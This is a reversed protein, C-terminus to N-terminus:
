GSYGLLYAYRVATRPAHEAFHAGDQRDSVIGPSPEDNAVVLEAM